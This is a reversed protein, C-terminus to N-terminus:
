VPSGGRVFEMVAFYERSLRESKIEFYRQTTALNVHGLLKQLVAASMGANVSRTAFSHRFQHIHLHQIGLRDCSRYLIQQIGRSSLRGGRSSIFLAPQDDHMRCRAVYTRVAEMARPGVIFSRLKDGKGTIEGSGFYGYSGDGLQHRQLSITRKDLKRLEDLRLGSYIFTLVIAKDRDNRIGDVLNALVHDDVARSMQNHVKPRKVRVVPNAIMGDSEVGLWEYYESVVSLSRAVTAPALSVAATRGKNEELYRRFEEITSPRVERVGLCKDKLFADFRSLDRRYARMTEQSKTRTSMSDLFLDITMTIEGFNLYTRTLDM